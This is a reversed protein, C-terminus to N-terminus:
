GPSGNKSEPIPSKRNLINGGEPMLWHSVLISPVNKNVVPFDIIGRLQFGGQIGLAILETAAAVRLYQKAGILM